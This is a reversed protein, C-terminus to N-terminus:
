GKSAFCAGCDKGRVGGRLGIGRGREEGVSGRDV